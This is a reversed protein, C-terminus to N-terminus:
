LKIDIINDGPAVESDLMSSGGSKTKKSKRKGAASTYRDQTGGENELHLEARPTEEAQSVSSKSKEAEAQAKVALFDQTRDGIKQQNSAEKAFDPARTIMIQADIGKISM